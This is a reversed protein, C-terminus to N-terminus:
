KYLIKNQSELIRRINRSTINDEKFFIKDLNSCYSDYNERNIEGNLFRQNIEEKELNYRYSVFKILSETINDDLNKCDYLLTPNWYINLLVETKNNKTKGMLMFVDNTDMNMLINLDELTIKKDHLMKDIIFSNIM